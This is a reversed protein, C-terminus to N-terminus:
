ATQKEAERVWLEALTILLETVDIMSRLAIWERLSHFMMGGAGLNPCPHGQASLQSGVTGGRIPKDRVELGVARTAECAIEIVREHGKFYEIMNPYQDKIQVEIVLGPIEAETEAAWEKIRQARTEVVKQDFDRLLVSLRAQECGGSCEHVYYFGERDKTTEPLENRPLRRLFAAMATSANVLKGFGYGPHVGNGKFVLDARKAWFCESEVEGPRSGDVTYCVETLRALDIPPVARGIEEDCDFCVRIEGHPLEPYKSFEQLAAMIEAIGAKNDAGLLTRGSATIITDGIHDTLEPSDKVTLTLDPNDSFTIPSGDWNFHLVPVVNEGPQEPSTDVHALWTIPTVPLESNSPLTGYLCGAPDLDINVLGLEELEDALLKLLDMQRETSPHADVGEASTTYVEAYRKFRELVSQGVSASTTRSTRM